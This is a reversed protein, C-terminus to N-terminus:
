QCTASCPHHPRVPSIGGGCPATPVLRCCAATPSSTWTGSAAPIGVLIAARAVYGKVEHRLGELSELRPKLTSEYLADIDADTVM